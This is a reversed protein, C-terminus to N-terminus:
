SGTSEWEADNTYIQWPDVGTEGLVSFTIPLGAHGTRTLNTEVTETVMGRPVVLRYERTGDQWELVLSREDVTEPSPPVYKYEGSTPETVTGGGFALRVTDGNWQELEFTVTSARETVIRRVPYFEQHARIDEISKQDSFKLGDQTTYGLDIFAANLASDSDTPLTTGVPAVHVAANLAVLIQDADTAM